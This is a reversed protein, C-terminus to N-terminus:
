KTSLAPRRLEGKIRKSHKKYVMRSKKFGQQEKDKAADKKPKV